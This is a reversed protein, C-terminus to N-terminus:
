NFLLGLLDGFGWILTGSVLLYLGHLGSIWLDEENVSSNKLSSQKINDAFDRHFNDDTYGRRKKLRRNNEIIQSSTLLVGIIVVVSGARAFWSWDQTNMSHWAGLIVSILSLLLASQTSLRLRQRRNKKRKQVAEIQIQSPIM